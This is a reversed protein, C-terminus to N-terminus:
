KKEDMRRLIEDPVLGEVSGGLSHVEKITSSSIFSYAPDTMLFVTEVKKDFLRANMQAMQIENEFDGAARLGRVVVDFGRSNVFDALLGEFHEVNVNEFGQLAETIMEKREELTFYPKKQPNVIIGVTLEDYLRAARRIINMHGNTLPDFSGTYLASTKMAKRGQNM